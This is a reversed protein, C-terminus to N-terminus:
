TRASINSSSGGRDKPCRGWIRCRFNPIFISCNFRRIQPLSPSPSKEAVPCKDCAFQEIGGMDNWVIHGFSLGRDLISQRQALQMMGSVIGKNDAYRRIVNDLDARIYRFLFGRQGESMEGLYSLSFKPQFNLLQITPNPPSEAIPMERSISFFNM